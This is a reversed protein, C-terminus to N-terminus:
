EAPTESFDVVQWALEAEDWSYIKKDDPYMFPPQWDFRDEDVVWSEFMKPPLFCKLSESYFAGAFPFIGTKPNEDVQVWVSDKNDTKNLGVSLVVSSKDLEVWYM